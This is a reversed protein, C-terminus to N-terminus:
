EFKKILDRAGNYDSQKIKLLTLLYMAEDNKPNLLLVTDLNKEEQEDNENKKFIKALYLYSNESRPNFVIDKEFFFVSLPRWKCNFFDWALNIVTAWPLIKSTTTSKLFFELVNPFVNEISIDAFDFKENYM